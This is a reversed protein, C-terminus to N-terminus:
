AGDDLRTAHWCPRDVLRRVIEVHYGLAELTGWLEEPRGFEPHVMMIITRPRWEGQRIQDILKYEGGEANCKVVVPRVGDLISDLRFTAVKRGGDEGPRENPEVWNGWSGEGSERMTARGDYKDLAGQVIRVRDRVASASLTRELCAVKDPNPEVLIAKTGQYRALFEAAWFGNFAGIDLAWDGDRYEIRDLSAPFYIDALGGLMDEAVIEDIPDPSLFFHARNKSTVFCSPRWYPAMFRRVRFGVSVKTGPQFAQLDLAAKTRWRLGSVLRRVQNM